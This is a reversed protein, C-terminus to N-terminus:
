RPCIGLAGGDIRHVSIMYDIINLVEVKWKLEVNHCITQKGEVTISSIFEVLLLSFLMMIMSLIGIKINRQEQSLDALCGVHNETFQVEYSYM